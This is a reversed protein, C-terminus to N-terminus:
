DKTKEKRKLVLYENWDKCEQSPNKTKVTLDPNREQFNDFFANGAEDNDTLIVVWLDPNNAKLELAIQRIKEAKGVGGMSCLLSNKTSNPHLEYYSILDIASEFVFLKKNEAVGGVAFNFIGSGYNRQFKKTKLIGKAEYGTIEGTSPNKCVFVCNNYGQEQYLLGKNILDIVIEESIARDKTLYKIIRDNNPAKEPAIIEKSRANPYTTQDPLTFTNNALYDVANKFKMKLYYIAFSLTNNGDTPPQGELKGNGYPSGHWYYYNKCIILGQQNKIRWEGKAPNEPIIAIGLERCLQVIDAQRAKRIMDETIKM